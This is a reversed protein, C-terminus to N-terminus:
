RITWPFLNKFFPVIKKKDRAIQNKFFVSQCFYPHGFSKINYYQLIFFSLKGNDLSKCAMSIVDFLEFSYHIQQSKATSTLYNIVSKVLSNLLLFTYM